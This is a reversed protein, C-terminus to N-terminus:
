PKAPASNKPPKKRKSLINGKTVMVPLPPTLEYLYGRTNVKAQWKEGEHKVWRRYGIKQEGEVTHDRHHLLFSGLRVALHNYLRHCGHSTGNNISTVTSSGHTRIGNDGYKPNAKKGYPKHHILMVIGYASHAGPGFIETKLRYGPFLRRVLDRDPTTDPPTWTPGAYLQKWVRPGVDSEKWKQVVWSGVGEPREDAWGGITTPWRMLPRKVEGDKVYLVLTPRRKVRRRIPREDYWVDGRDVVANLEMHPAHYSPVPPLAVAVKGPKLEVLSQALRDPDTWGLAKAAAETAPSILDPAADPMPKHGRAARMHMPDLERGMIPQPGEGATGDELLGTADVTRERLIRLALRYDLERSDIQLAARTEADLRENPMLFNRRQFREIADGTLWTFEGDIFKRPMFGECALRRQLTMVATRFEDLAQWTAVQKAYVPSVAALAAFDPLGRAVRAKELKAGMWKRRMLMSHVRARDEQSWIRNFGAIPTPDIAAWCSHRATDALRKRVIALSPTVGYLEGLKDEHTAKKHLRENAINLYDDRYGPVKTGDPSASLVAPTWEDGLDIVTLGKAGAEAPCVRGREVGDAMIPIPDACTTPDATITGREQTQKTIAVAAAATPPKIATVPRAPAPTRHCAGAVTVIALLQWRM